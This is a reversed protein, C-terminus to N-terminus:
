AGTSRPHSGADVPLRVSVITGHGERSRIRISGGHLETLSTTIALGLGSGQHSKTFQNSVQEFPRGLKALSTSSIGIGTDEVSFTVATGTTRARVTIEGELTFKVANSLLNLMIQKLAKRDGRMRLNKGIDTVVKINRADAQAQVIRISEDVLDDLVLDELTLAMRGAEIRSMDLIDDIVGLLYAGSQNIDKCYESYKASGLPGFMGSQMVESFGIIANLPTRLEHSINALFESKARNAGEARDKEEAYKEALEVMQQAQMELKQRSQRLDAITAMLRREGDILKAEHRKLQTIDTGISVFGGDKTRRENIQLWRGDELQLEFSRAGEEPRGDVVVQARVLPKRGAAIVDAYPTGPALASDPMGHLQQYKSNCMVLRNDADWLVFAESITEIADRLRIDATKSREVLRMQETVDVAIGILHPGGTDRDVLEARARLWVWRGDAHRMRFMQDVTAEGAEYLSEALAMLDGDDPHMLNSVEGFGILADRPELGIIEFMSRSWFMRGSALDWDWLGCRGRMLATESRAQTESYIEDAEVARSAQAFYGYLIVLLIASTGMFIAVNLSVDARWSSYVSALPAIVAVDGAGGELHHVTALAPTGDALSIELVGARVGFITLPQTEGLIRVLPLGEFEANRPATAVVLGDHDTVYIMRGNNTASSPLTASLTARIADTDAATEGPHAKDLASSLVAAILGMTERAAYEREAKHQYLEVFRAAGVILLFIVILIPILRRLLPEAALLKEYAPHALLKAHGSIAAKKPLRIGSLTSQKAVSPEVAGARAM